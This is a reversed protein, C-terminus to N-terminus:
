AQPTEVPNEPMTPAPLAKGEDVVEYDLTIQPDNRRVEERLMEVRSDFRDKADKLLGKLREVEDESQQVEVELDRLHELKKIPDV